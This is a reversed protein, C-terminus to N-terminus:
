WKIKNRGPLLGFFEALDNPSVNFPYTFSQPLNVGAIALFATALNSCDFHDPQTLQITNSPWIKDLGQDVIDLWGYPRGILKRLFEIGKQVNEPKLTHVKGDPQNLTWITCVARKTIDEARGNDLTGYAIGRTTAEILTDPSNYPPDGGFKNGILIAAHVYPGNTAWQVARTAIQNSLGPGYDQYLVIAGTRDDSSDM